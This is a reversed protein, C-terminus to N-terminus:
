EHVGVFIEVVDTCGHEAAAISAGDHAADEDSAEICVHLRGECRDIITCPFKM